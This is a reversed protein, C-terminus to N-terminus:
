SGFPDVFVPGSTQNGTAGDLTFQSRSSTGLDELFSGRCRIVNGDVEEIELDDLALRGSQWAVGDRGV